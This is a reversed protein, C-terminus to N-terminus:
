RLYDFFYQQLSQIFQNRTCLRAKRFFTIRTHHGTIHLYKMLAIAASMVHKIKINYHALKSIIEPLLLLQYVDM